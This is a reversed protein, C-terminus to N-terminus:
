KCGGYGGGPTIYIVNLTNGDNSVNADNIYAILFLGALGLGLLTRAIDTKEGEVKIIDSVNITGRFNKGKGDKGFIMGSGMLLSDKLRYDDLVYETSDKTMINLTGTNKPDNLQAKYTVVETTTCGAFYSIILTWCVTKSILNKMNNYM